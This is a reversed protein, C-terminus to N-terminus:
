PSAKGAFNAVIGLTPADVDALRDRLALAQESKIKGMRSVLIVADVEEMLTSVGPVVDLPPSDIVVLSYNKRCERLIESMRESAILESLEPRWEGAPLVDLAPPAGAGNGNGNRSLLLVQHCADWLATEEGLVSALGGERPLGLSRALTPRRLQAEILIVDGRGAAAAALNFAVTSRGEQATASIVLVSVISRDRVFPGLSADLKEFAAREDASLDHTAGLRRGLTHSDPLTALVPLDFANEFESPSWLRRDARALTLALVVGLGLVLGALGGLLTNRVPKPSSPESPPTSRELVARNPRVEAAFTNAVLAAIRPDGATAEVELLPPDDKQRVEITPAGDAGASDGRRGM